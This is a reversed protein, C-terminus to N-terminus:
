PSSIDRKAPERSSRAALTNSPCSVLELPALRRVRQGAEFTIQAGIRVACQGFFRPEPPRQGELLQALAVIGPPGPVLQELVDRNADVGPTRAGPQLRQLGLRGVAPGARHTRGIFAPTRQAGQQHAQGPHGAAGGGGLRRGAVSALAARSIM